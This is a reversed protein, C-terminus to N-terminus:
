REFAELAGELGYSRLASMRDIVDLARERISDDSTQSYVRVILQSVDASDGAAATSIDGSAAGAMEVFREAFLCSVEPLTVECTELARLLDDYSDNFASSEIFAIALETFQELDKGRLPRFCDAAKRRVELDEDNFLRLLSEVCTERHGTSRLNTAFIEAAGERLPPRGSMCYDHLDQAGPFELSALSAQRAGVKAVDPLESRIMREVVPRLQDFHTPVTYYLFNEVYHTALLEERTDVLKLFLEAAVDRHHKLLAVLCHAVCSRVSLIPDDVLRKLHPEVIEYHDNESFLIAAIAEAAEGRVSNIGASHISGGYFPDGGASREEWVDTAPHPDNLAYWAVMKVLEEPVSEQARQYVARAIAMGCPKNPIRDARSCARMLLALDTGSEPDGLAEIVASFYHPNIDDPASEILKVFREPERAVQVKLVRSLQIAGGGEPGHSDGWDSSYKTMAKLWQGDTMRETSEQPIPSGVVYAEPASPPEAPRRFKRELEKLRKKAEDTLLEETVGSLLVYQCEGRRRRGQATLEWSPYYDLLVSQIRQRNDESCSTIAWALLERSAWSMESAYGLHLRNPVAILFDIASDALESPAGLYGRAFLFDLTELGRHGFTEVTQLFVDPESGALGKLAHEMGALLADSLSLVEGPYRFSWVADRRLPPKTSDVTRECVDAMFPLVHVVFDKPASKGTELPIDTHQTDPITGGSSDFPNAIGAEEALALRRRLYSGILESAWAPRTKHLPYVLSWFDSNVAIPGRAEDLVGAELLQLFFEFFPRSSGLEAWQAVWRLRADWDESQGIFPTLLEAVKAPRERQIRNLVTVAEPSRDDDTTLWEQLVGQDVLLDFWEAKAAILGLVHQKVEASTELATALVEWEEPSPDALSSLYDLATRKLHFRIRSDTLLSKLDRLYRTRNNDREYQLVQRVQARRFLGQDRQLLFEMLDEDRAGFARAFAYDFFSQHFFALRGGDEVLVHESLLAPIEAAYEDLAPRPVSLSEARSMRECIAELTKAWSHHPALRPTLRQRKHEWYQGLLDNATEFNFDRQGSESAVLTLLRLHLPISLLDRQSARLTDAPFGLSEVVNNVTEDSLELVGVVKADGGFQDTLARLRDDNQLDFERCAVLVSVDPQYRAEDIIERLCQWFDPHRGSTISVADLQDLVLFSRRGPSLASLVAPPSAPLGVQEGVQRPLQTPQLLDCRLPITLYGESTLSEVVQATVGSKGIGGRGTVLVVNHEEKLLLELVTETEDRRIPSGLIAEERHPRLYRDTAARVADAVSNDRAWDTPRFDKSRLHTWIDSAIVKGSLRDLAYQLLVSGTTDPPGQILSELETTLLTRLADENWQITRVRTLLLRSENATLGEWIAILRHWVTTLEQSLRSEFDAVSSSEKARTSLLHIQDAPAETILVFTSGPDGTLKKRINQLVGEASLRNITWQGHSRGSKVQHHEREAGRHLVFEVGVGAEGPPELELADARERLLETICHITWRGEFRNGYKDAAGGPMSM